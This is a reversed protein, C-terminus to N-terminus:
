SNVFQKKVYTRYVAGPETTEEIGCRRLTWFSKVVYLWVRFWNAIKASCLLSAPDIGANIIFQRRRASERDFETVLQALM